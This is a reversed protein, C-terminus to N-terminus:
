QAGAPPKAPAEYWKDKPVLVAQAPQDFFHPSMIQVGYTNFQDQIASHLGSLIPVRELPRDIHAFVEYEVYFDNLARQYVFPTPSHRVGHTTRAAEILMAHVQRWPTDYGITVKTSVLTGQEGALKSYNRIAAGTIVSNPITIEENRMNVVKVALAGVEGVVGEIDNISVFDGKKLSRSYVVVLGSMLQTMLGTSGLTIMLGFLVSLGKFADTNSGPLYPYAVAMALGWVLVSLLRKTAGVTDAHMFPVRIRGSQVHNLFMSLVDQIVRAVLLVVAVTLLGPIAGMIGTALWGGLQQVFSALREGWPQTWPFANLFTIAMGYILAGYLLWVLVSLVRLAFIKLYAKLGTSLGAAVNESASTLRTQLRTVIWLGLACVLLDILAVAGGRLWVTANQQERRSKMAEELNVRAKEAAQALTLHDEQDLDSNLVTFLPQGAVQLILGNTDALKFPVIGVAQELETDTLADFRRQARKARDPAPVGALTGRLEIIDRNYLVLMVPASSSAAETAAGAALVSTTSAGLFLLSFLWGLLWRLGFGLRGSSGFIKTM